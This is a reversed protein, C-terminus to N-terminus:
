AALKFFITALSARALELHAFGKQREQDNSQRERGAAIARALPGVHDGTITLRFHCHHIERRREREIWERRTPIV